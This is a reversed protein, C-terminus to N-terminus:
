SREGDAHEPLLQLLRLLLRLPHRPLGLLLALLPRRGRRGLAGADPHAEPVLGPAELVGVLFEHLLM